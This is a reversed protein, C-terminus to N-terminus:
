HGFRNDTHQPEDSIAHSYSVYDSLVGFVATISCIDALMLIFILLYEASAKKYFDITNM